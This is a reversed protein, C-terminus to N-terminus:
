GPLLGLEVAREVAASRGSVGLKRYIAITHSKVTNRSIFLHAGIEELSRHTRLQELVRMEATSPRTWPTQGKSGQRSLVQRQVRDAWEHLLEADPEWSLSAQALRLQRMAEPVDHRLLAADALVLRHHGAGRPITDTLATITEDALTSAAVSAEPDGRKADAYARVTHVMVALPLRETGTARLEATAQDALRFGDQDDTQLRVLACHALTVAHVAGDGATAREAADFLRVPDDDIGALHIAVAHQMRAMGWWPSGSPGADIITQAALAMAKVGERGGIMQLAAQAVRVSVTGDPLPGDEVEDLLQLTDTLDDPRGRNLATWGRAILLPGSRRVVDPPFSDLWLDLAVMSGRALTPFLLRYVVAAAFELDGSALAQHVAGAHDGDRLLWEAARRRLEPEAGPDTRRLEALLLEGFLHHYRFAGPEHLAVVFLNGSRALGDLRASGDTGGTVADCLPGNLRELVSTHLLFRREDASSGALLERDIYDAIHGQGGVADRLAREPDPQGQVALMLLQLGAPWGETRTLLDDVVEGALEEGVLTRVVELGEDHDFALHQPGVALVEESLRRRSWRLAPTSRGVLIVRSGEPVADILRELVELTAESGIEHVDDVVISVPRPTASLSGCVAAMAREPDSARGVLHRRATPLPVVADLTAVVARLFSVPDADSRDATLWATADPDGQTWQRVLTTKGYGAPAVVLACRADTGECLRGLRDRTLAGAATRPPDIKAPPVSLDFAVGAGSM